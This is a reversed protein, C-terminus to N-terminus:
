CIHLRTNSAQYVHASPKSLNQRCFKSCFLRNKSRANQRCILANELLIQASYPFILLVLSICLMRLFFNFVSSLVFSKNHVNIIKKRVCDEHMQQNVMEVLIIFHYLSKVKCLSYRISILTLGLSGKMDLFICDPRLASFNTPM